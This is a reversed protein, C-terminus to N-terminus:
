KIQIKHNKREWVEIYDDLIKQLIEGQFRNETASIIKLKRISIPTLRFNVLEKTEDAGKSASKSAKAM